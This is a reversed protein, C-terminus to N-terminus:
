AHLILICVILLSPAFLYGFWRAARHKGTFSAQIIVIAILLVVLLILGPAYSPYRNLSNHLQFLFMHMLPVGEEADGLHLVFTDTLFLFSRRVCRSEVSITTPAVVLSVISVDVSQVSTM